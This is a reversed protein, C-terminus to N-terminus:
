NFIPLTFKYIFTIKNNYRTHMDLITKKRINNYFAMDICALVTIPMYM